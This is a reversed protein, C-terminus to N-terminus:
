RYLAERVLFIDCTRDRNRGRAGDRGQWAAHLIAM